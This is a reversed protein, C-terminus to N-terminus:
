KNVFDQSKGFAHITSIGQVSAQVHSLLPSRTTSDLRKLQRICSTFLVNLLVFFFTLPVLAILFWLSVYSISILAFIILLINQLFIEMNGPLRVDVSIVFHINL